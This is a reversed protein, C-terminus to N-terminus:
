ASVGAMRVGHMPQYQATIAARDIWSFWPVLSGERKGRVLDAGATSFGTRSGSVAMGVATDVSGERAALDVVHAERGSRPLDRCLFRWSFEDKAWRWNGLRRLLPFKASGTRYLARRDKGQRLAGEFLFPFEMLSGASHEDPEEIGLM